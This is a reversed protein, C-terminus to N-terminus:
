QSSFIAFSFALFLMANIDIGHAIALHHPRHPGTIADDSRLHECLGVAVPEQGAALHMEGPIQGAGIDWAPAKDAHYERLVAAEFTRIRVMGRYRDVRIDDSM